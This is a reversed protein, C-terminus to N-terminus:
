GRNKRKGRVKWHKATGRYGKINNSVSSLQTRFLSADAIVPQLIAQLIGGQAAM